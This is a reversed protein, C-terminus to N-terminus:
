GTVKDMQTVLDTLDEQTAANIVNDVEPDEARIVTLLLNAVTEVEAGGIGDDAGDLIFDPPNPDPAKGQSKLTMQENVYAIIASMKTQIDSSAKQAIQHALGSLREAKSGGKPMKLGDKLVKDYAELMIRVEFPKAGITFMSLAAQKIVNASLTQPLPRKPDFLRALYREAKAKNPANLYASSEKVEDCIANMLLQRNKLNEAAVSENLSTRKTASGGDLMVEAYKVAGALLDDVHYQAPVAANAFSDEDAGPRMGTYACPRGTATEILSKLKGLTNITESHGGRKNFEKVVKAMDVVSLPRSILHGDPAKEAIELGALNALGLFQSSLTKLKKEAQTVGKLDHLKDVIATIRRETLPSGSTVCGNKDITFNSRAFVDKGLLQEMRDMFASTFVVKGESNRELHYNFAGALSELLQTRTANNAAKTEASRGWRGLVNWSRYKASVKTEDKLQLIGSGDSGKQTAITGFIGLKSLNIDM